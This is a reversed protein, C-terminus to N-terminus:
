VIQRARDTARDPFADFASPRFVEQGNLRSREEEGREKDGRMQSAVAQPSYWLNHLEFWVKEPEFHDERWKYKTDTIMELLSCTM